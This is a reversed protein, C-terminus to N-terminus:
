LHLPVRDELVGDIELVPLRVHSVVVASTTTGAAPGVGGDGGGGGGGDGGGGGGGGGVGTHVRNRAVRMERWGGEPEGTNPNIDFQPFNSSSVDLRIRHGAKFLNATASPRITIEYVAEGGGGDDDNEEPSSSMFVERDWGNRYRMRFIGDTVNMAYGMPYDDNPPHVDILKATFDTDPCDSSVRLVVEVAGVVAVDSELVDSEFVLVDPRSSLPMNPECPKVTFIGKHVRQDFCGGVMIPEGSTVAGGVTPVPDSPDYLYEAACGDGAAPVSESLRGVGGGGDDDRWELHLRKQVVNAPPWVDSHVWRGGHRMRGNGDKRGDGGGMLFFRVRRVDDVGNDKQDKLWRGFWDLRMRLYDEAINGDLTSQHGFDVDGAHTVSRNGHTWPGMLLTVRSEHRRGLEVFNTLCSLVYPDQWSGVIATPVDPFMDYYGENNMGPRRYYESFTGEQWEDFLYSEYDPVPTLPSNGRRWPLDRFWEFIDKETLARVMEEDGRRKAARLAHKHAWTVQKMEFAGGRRIGNHYASSFGGSDVYMCALGRPRSTALASQVHADYSFGMTGIRRPDCWPQRALWEMLDHGDRAEDVYKHFTGGSGFKGRCDQMVVVYGRRCMHRAIDSRRAARPRAASFESRSEGCKNYPTRELIVPYRRRPRYTSLRRM